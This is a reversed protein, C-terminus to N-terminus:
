DFVKVLKDSVEEHVYYLANPAYARFQSSVGTATSLDAGLILVGLTKSQIEDGNNMKDRIFKYIDWYAYIGGNKCKELVPYYNIDCGTSFELIRDLLYTEKLWTKEDETLTRNMVSICLTIPKINDYSLPKDRRNIKLNNEGVAILQEVTKNNLYELLEDGTDFRVEDCTLMKDHRMVTWILCPVNINVLVSFELENDYDANETILNYTGSRGELETPTIMDESQKSLWDLIGKNLKASKCGQYDSLCRQLFQELSKILWEDNTIANIADTLSDYNKGLYEGFEGYDNTDWALKVNITNQNKIEIEGKKVAEALETDGDYKFRLDLPSIVEDKIGTKDIVTATGVISLAVIFMGNDKTTVVNHVPFEDNYYFVPNNYKGVGPQKLVETNIIKM